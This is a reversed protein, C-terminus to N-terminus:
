HEKLANRVTDALARNEEAQDVLSWKELIEEYSDTEPNVKPVALRQLGWNDNEKMCKYSWLTWSLGSKHLLRLGEAWADMSNFYNFEGLYSPVNYNAKKIGRIKREMSKIQANDENQYNSYEYNHYSYMVNTFDYKKPNPLDSADWVAELIILRGPDKARIRRYAEEYVPYLLDHFERDSLGSNYRYTCFPENLLDYGLVAPDNLYHEAITEWLRYFLEQNEKARDGFFFESATKKDDKGDIGAHDSGNQSGYAGHMDLIVYLDRKAAERVFWDTRSFADERFNGQEDTFVGYWLPLRICNFGCEKIYDFDKETFYRDRYVKLLEDKREEGFRESLVEELEKQCHVRATEETPGMWFEQVFYNGINVGRLLVTNGESNILAKGNASLFGPAPLEGPAPSKPFLIIILAAASVLLVAAPIIFRKKVSRGKQRNEAKELLVRPM